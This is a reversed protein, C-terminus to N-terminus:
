RHHMEAVGWSIAAIGFGFIILRGIWAPELPPSSHKTGLRGERFIAGPVMALVILAVGFAIDIM